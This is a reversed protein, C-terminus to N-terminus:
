SCRPQTWTATNSVDGLGNDGIPYVRIYGPKTVKGTTADVAGKVIAIIYLEDDTFLLQSVTDAPGQPINQTQAVPLPLSVTTGTFAQPSRIEPTNFGVNYDFCEIGSKQGTTAVCFLKKQTGVAITSPNDGNTTVPGGLPFLQTPNSCNIAYVQM